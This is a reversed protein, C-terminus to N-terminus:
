NTSEMEDAEEVNGKLDLFLIQDVDVEIAVHKVKEGPNQPDDKEYNRSKIRGVIQVQSGKKLHRGCAEANAGWTICPIYDAQGSKRNTAVLLDCVAKGKPTWRLNPEKCLNGLLIVINTSKQSM